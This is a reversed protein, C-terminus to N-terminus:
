FLSKRVLSPLLLLYSFFTFVLEVFENEVSLADFFDSQKLTLFFHSLFFLIVFYNACRVFLLTMGAVIDRDNHMSGSTYGFVIGMLGLGVSVLYYIGELFPSNQLSGTVSRLLTLPAYTISFLLVSYIVGVMLSFLFGRKEKRTLLTRSSFLKGLTTVWGSHFLLGGGLFLIMVVGLAPTALYHPLVHRLQWRLADATLLNQVQEVGQM